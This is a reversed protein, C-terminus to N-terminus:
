KVGKRYKILDLSNRIRVVNEVYRDLFEMGTEIDDTYIFKEMHESFRKRCKEIENIVVSMEKVGQQESLRVKSQQAVITM